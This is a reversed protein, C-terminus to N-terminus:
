SGHRGHTHLQIAIPLRAAQCRVIGACTHVLAPCTLAPARPACRYAMGDFYVIHGMGPDPAGYAAPGAPPPLTCRCAAAPEFICRGPPCWHVTDDHHWDESDITCTKTM